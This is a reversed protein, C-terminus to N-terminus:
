EVVELGLGAHSADLDSIAFSGQTWRGRQRLDEVLFDGAPLAFGAARGDDLRPIWVRIGSGVGAVVVVVVVGEGYGGVFAVLDEDGGRVQLDRGVLFADFLAGEEWCAQVDGGEAGGELVAGQCGEGAPRLEDEGDVAGADGEGEVWGLM